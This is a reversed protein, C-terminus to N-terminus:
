KRALGPQAGEAGQSGGHTPTFKGAGFDMERPAPRGAGARIRRSPPVSSGHRSGVLRRLGAISDKLLMAQANLEEAASASEEASAANGQVVKDMALVASNIQNVGQSQERSATAVEGVLEDVKRVEEVIEVLSKGLQESIEVGQGTKAISGEIKEATERAAEASRQALNRVEDAVVAFGMGAEGARAAEVAANLALINTQFAIEDITKIIKSIKDGSAKIGSMAKDMAGLSNAGADAFHRAQSALKKASAADEANRRTMSAMEELSSSAQELASAQQNAGEALSQSSDSVQGAAAAIQASSDALEGIVREIPRAISGALAVGAVLALMASIGAVLGVWELMSERASDLQAGFDAFDDQYAGAGIVWNWPAFGCIAAFKARPQSEGPNQWAYSEFDVTGDRSKLGKEIISQVYHRGSADTTGWIDEGDRLGKYSLIYKGREDGKGGLIFVYGTKGVVIRGIAELLERNITGMDVGAYLMGIVRKRGDDWIPEYAATHWSNVVFARGHYTDGRLVAAIMPNSSGDPNRAPIFTGIARTGDAKLVSTCVRLMDGEDNMRQFVTCFTGTLRRIEDVILATKGVDGVQGLWQSGVMMRPLSVPVVQQTLQNAARWVVTGEGLHVGGAELVLGHAIGLSRGVEVQNREETGSCMLYISQVIKAAENRGQRVIVADAEEVLHKQQVFLVAGAAVLAFLVPCVAILAIKTSIGVRSHVKGASM